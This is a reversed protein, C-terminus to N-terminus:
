RVDTRRSYSASVGCAAATEHSSVIEDSMCLINRYVSYGLFVQAFGYNADPGDARM